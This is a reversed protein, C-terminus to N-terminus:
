TVEIKLNIGGAILSLKLASTLEQSLGLCLESLILTEERVSLM